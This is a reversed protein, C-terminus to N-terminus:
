RIALKCPFGTHLDLWNAKPARAEFNHVANEIKRQNLSERCTIVLPCCPLKQGLTSLWFYYQNNISIMGASNIIHFTSGGVKNCMGLRAVTASYLYKALLRCVATTFHGISVSYTYIYRMIPFHWIARFPRITAFM